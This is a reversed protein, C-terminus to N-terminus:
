EATEARMRELIDVIQDFFTSIPEGRQVGESIERLQGVIDPNASVYANVISREEEEIRRSVEKKIENQDRVAAEGRDLTVGVMALNSVVVAVASDVGEVDTAIEVIRDAMEIAGPRQQGPVPQTRPTPDPPDSGPSREPAREPVPRRFPLTCGSLVLSFILIICVTLILRRNFM